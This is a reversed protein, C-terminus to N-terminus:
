PCQGTHVAKEVTQGLSITAKDLGDEILADHLPRFILPWSLLAAGKTPMGARPAIRDAGQREAVGFGHTRDFRRPSVSRSEVALSISKSTIAFQGM